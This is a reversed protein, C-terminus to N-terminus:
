KSRGKKARSMGEYLLGQEDEAPDALRFLQNSFGFVNLAEFYAAVSVGSDGKELRKFTSVSIGVRQAASEVSEKRRLRAIKIRSGLLGLAAQVGHSVHVRKSGTDLSDEGEFDIM